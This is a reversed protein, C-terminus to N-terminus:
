FKTSLTSEEVNLKRMTAKDADSLQAGARVLDDYDREVLRKQVADLDLTDRQDYISKVRAFLKPDLAIEDQHAALKPAIEEQIKQRADNTDAQVLGFFVRAVRGLTEGSEEMAVITNDFTAPEPNDAIKRIEALHQKMGEEFAPLFDADEIKDFPPAQFPLTSAALLPNDATAPTVAADAAATPQETAAPAGAEPAQGDCAALALSIAGALVLPRLM